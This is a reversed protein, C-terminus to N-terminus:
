LKGPFLSHTIKKLCTSITELDPSLLKSDRGRGGRLGGGVWQIGKRHFDPVLAKSVTHRRSSINYLEWQADKKLSGQPEGSAWSCNFAPVCHSVFLGMAQNCSIKRSRLKRTRGKNMFSEVHTTPQSIGLWHLQNLVREYSLCTSQSLEPITIYDSPGFLFM